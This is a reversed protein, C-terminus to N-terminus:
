YYRDSESKFDQKIDRFAITLEQIPLEINSNTMEYAKRFVESARFSNGIAENGFNRKYDVKIEQLTSLENLQEM